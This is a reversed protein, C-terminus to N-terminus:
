LNLKYIFISDKLNHLNSQNPMISNFQIKLKCRDVIFRDNPPLIVICSDNIFKEVQNQSVPLIM